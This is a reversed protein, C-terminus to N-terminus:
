LRRQSLMEVLDMEKKVRGQNDIEFPVNFNMNNSEDVVSGCPMEHDGLMHGFSSYKESFMNTDFPFEMMEDGFGYYSNTPGATQQDGPSFDVSDQQLVQPIMADVGNVNSGSCTSKTQDMKTSSSNTVRKIYNQLLTNMPHKRSRRKAFQRRKTANWHNKITNESRGPLRKAIEAWKNGLDIHAQVLIKDEEETWTDKRIDPRLHNHWRDRCQKGVRGNLMQAIHSWKKVGFEEVLQVLLRDEEPTWQGKIVDSKERGQGKRKAQLRGKKLDAEKYHGNEATICSVQDDPLMCTSMSRIDQSNVLAPYIPLSQEKQAPNIRQRPSPHHDLFGRIVQHFEYKVGSGSGSGSRSGSGNGGVMTSPMVKTSLNFNRSSTSSSLRNAYAEFTNFRPTSLGFFPSSSSGEISFQDVHHTDQYIVGKSPFGEMSAFGNGLQDPKFSNELFITPPFGLDERINTDFEM